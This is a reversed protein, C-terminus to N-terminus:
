NRIALTGDTTFTHGRIFDPGEGKKCFGLDEFQMTVIVPYDDYTELLDVDTPKVGAMRWM